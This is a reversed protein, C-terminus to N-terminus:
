KGASARLWNATLAVGAPLSVTPRWDLESVAREISLVSKPVDFPRADLYRRIPTVNTAAEIAAIVENLSSGSGSGINFLRHHGTYVMAALLARVVDSIHIYDRVVSGDGWIEIPEGRLAKGLFVAVAGQSGQTRQREGYPNAIRLVVSDLGHLHRYLYLYKEVTLKTIGYSCIPFTPHEEPIPLLAPIGYVTGGSSVFIVRKVGARLAHELLRISGIVNTEVDFAPDLNSTNPLTTSVLHFVVECGRIARAIEPAATFEGEIREFQQSSQPAGGGRV